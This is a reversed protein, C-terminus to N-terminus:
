ASSNGEIRGDRALAGWRRAYDAVDAALPTVPSLMTDLQLRDDVLRLAGLPVNDQMPSLYVTQSPRLAALARTFVADGAFRGEIVLREKSGILDLSTDAVLALYLGAVARRGLLDDPTVGIWRGTVDPFPGVGPQFTPLAFVGADILRGAGRVLADAHAAPDIPSDAAGAIQEVERGGMFRASPVPMGDADVNVLCDRLHPLAAPDIAGDPGPSRMAVFWTGTSLVTFERGRVEPYLRAALLAANSDHLGCLVMCDRPLGCRTRWEATVPGLVDGARRLPALRDAWGQAVALPSPCGKAPNWLDTHSGLSTAETTAIGSLLWAWYQPWTVIRGSRAKDPAITDLWLLQAGLNLGAPLCPSGTVAFPDRLARYRTGIEAPPEAEYDVPPLRLGGGDVICAAAGHGVPVIAAIDSQRALEELTAALWATIGEVDLSPYGDAARVANAHTRRAVLRRDSSWMTLKSLSKGVDIIVVCGRRM